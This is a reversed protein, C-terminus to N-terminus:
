RGRAEEKVLVDSTDTSREAPDPSAITNAKYLLFAVEATAGIVEPVDDRPARSLAGCQEREISAEHLSEVVDASDLLHADVHDQHDLRAPASPLARM